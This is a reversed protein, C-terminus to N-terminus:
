GAYYYFVYMECTGDVALASTNSRARLSIEYVGDSPITYAGIGYYYYSENGAGSIFSWAANGALRVHPRFFQPWPAESTRRYLVIVQNNAKLTPLTIQCDTSLYQGLNAQLTAGSISGSDYLFEHVVNHLHNGASLHLESDGISGSAMFNAFTIQSLDIHRVWATGNWFEPYGLVTNFREAGIPPSGPRQATTGRPLGLYYAGEPLQMGNRPEIVGTDGSLDDIPGSIQSNMNGASLVEDM